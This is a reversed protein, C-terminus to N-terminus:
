TIFMFFQNDIKEFGHIKTAVQNSICSCTVPSILSLGVVNIDLDSPLKKEAIFHRLKKHVLPVLGFDNKVLANLMLKGGSMADRIMIQHIERNAYAYTGFEYLAKCFQRIEPDTFEPFEASLDEDDKDFRSYVLVAEKFYSDLITDLLGEKSGFYYGIMAVNCGAAEAIARTSAGSFGHEAFLTRAVKQIKNKDVEVPRGLKKM